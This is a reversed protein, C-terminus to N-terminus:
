KINRTDITSNEWNVGYSINFQNTYWHYVVTPTTRILATFGNPSNYASVEDGNIYVRTNYLWTSTLQGMNNSNSVMVLNYLYEYNAYNRNYNIQKTVYAEIELYTDETFNYRFVGLNQYVNPDNTYYSVDNDKITSDGSFLPFTFLMLIIFIFKKM